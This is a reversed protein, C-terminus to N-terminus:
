ASTPSRDGQILQQAYREGEDTLYWNGADEGVLAPSQVKAKGLERTVLSPRLKGAQKFQQNFTAALSSGGIESTGASQKIVILM